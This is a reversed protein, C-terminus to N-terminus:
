KNWKSIVRKIDSLRQLSEVSLKNSNEYKEKQRVLKELLLSDYSDFPYPGYQIQDDNYTETEDTPIFSLLPYYHRELIYQGFDNKFGHSLLFSIPLDFDSQPEIVIHKLQSLKAQGESLIKLITKGGMGLIFIGQCDKPLDTLGDSLIPTVSSNQNELSKCLINFPGVKNECAYMVHNAKALSLSLYGHDAGVDL